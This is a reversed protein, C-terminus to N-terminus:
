NFTSTQTIITVLKSMDKRDGKRAGLGMFRPKEDYEDGFVGFTSENKSQDKGKKSRKYPNNFLDAEDREDANMYDELNDVQSDNEDSSDGDSLYKNKNGM